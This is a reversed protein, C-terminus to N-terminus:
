KNATEVKFGNKQNYSLNYGPIYLTFFDDNEEYIGSKNNLIIAFENKFKLEIQNSDNKTIGTLYKGIFLELNENIKEDSSQSDCLTENKKKIEWDCCYVWLCIEGEIYETGSPGKKINKTGMDFCLASGHGKQSNWIEHTSVQLLVEELNM